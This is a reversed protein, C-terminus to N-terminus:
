RSPEIRPYSRDPRTPVLNRTIQTMAKNYLRARKIISEAFLSELLVPRIKAILITANAKYEYKLNKKQEKIKDNAESIALSIM